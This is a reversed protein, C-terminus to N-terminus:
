PREAAGPLSPTGTVLPWAEYKRASRPDAFVQVVRSEAPGNQYSVRSGAPMLVASGPALEFVAGDISLTGGGALVYLYEESEDAHEPITAGPAIVMIGLYANAGQVLAVSWATGSPSRRPAHETADLVRAAPRAGADLEPPASACAGLTAVAAWALVLRSVADFGVGSSCTM